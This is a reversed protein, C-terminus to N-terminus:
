QTGFIEACRSTQWFGFTDGTPRIASIMGARDTVIQVKCGLRMEGGADYSTNSIATSGVVTTTTVASGPLPINM